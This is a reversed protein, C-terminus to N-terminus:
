LAKMVLALVGYVVPQHLMYIVLSQKGIWELPKAHFSSLYKLWDRSKFIKYLFYGMWYMFLFPILPFYDESRFDKAPFGLYATFFNAYLGKPIELFVKGGISLSGSDINKTVGFLVFSIFLGIYPSIRCFLKDLPKMIIMASGMLSLIGFLILGDPMFVVTIISIVASCILVLIGRKMKKSGLSWCFGSLLIFIYCGIQQWVHVASSEFWEMQVDFLYKMDWFMHYLVMSIISAGRLIDLLSYRERKQM